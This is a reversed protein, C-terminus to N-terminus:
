LPQNDRRFVFYKSFLTIGRTTLMGAIVLPLTRIAPTLDFEIQWDLLMLVGRTTLLIVMLPLFKRWQGRMLFTINGTETVGLRTQNGVLWGYIGGTTFFLTMLAIVWDFLLLQNRYITVGVLLVGMLSQYLVLAWSYRKWKDSLWQLAVTLKSKIISVKNEQKLRFTTRKIDEEM